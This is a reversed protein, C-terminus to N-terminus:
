RQYTSVNNYICIGIGCRLLNVRETGSICNTYTITLSKVRDCHNTLSICQIGISTTTICSQFYLFGM